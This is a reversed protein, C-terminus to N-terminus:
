VATWATQIMGIINLTSFVFIDSVFINFIITQPNNYSNHSLFFTSEVFFGSIKPHIKWILWLGSLVFLQRIQNTITDEICKFTPYSNCFVYFPPPTLKACSKAHIPEKGHTQYLNEPFLVHLLLKPFFGSYWLHINILVVVMWEHRVFTNQDIVTHEKLIFAGINM